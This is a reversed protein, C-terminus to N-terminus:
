PSAQKARLLACLIALAPTAASGLTRGRPPEPPYLVCDIGSDPLSADISYSFGPLVKEVLALAADITETVYCDEVGPIFWGGYSDDTPTFGLAVFIAQDLDHAPGTAKEVRELAKLDSM